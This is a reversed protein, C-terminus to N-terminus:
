VHVLQEKIHLGPHATYNDSLACSPQNSKAFHMIEWYEYIQSHMLRYLCGRIVSCYTSHIPQAQYKM